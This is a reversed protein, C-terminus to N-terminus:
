FSGMDLDGIKAEGVIVAAEPLIEQRQISQIVQRLKM